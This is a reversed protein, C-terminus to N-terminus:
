SQAKEYQELERLMNAAGNPNATHIHYKPIKVGAEGCKKILYKVCDLGTKEKVFAYNFERGQGIALMCEEMATEDLDHDLSVMDPIGLNDLLFCFEKYSKALLWDTPMTKTLTLLPTFKEAEGDQHRVICHQVTRFDDLCLYFPKNLRNM